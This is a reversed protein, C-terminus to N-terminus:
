SASRPFGREAPLHVAFGAPPPADMLERYHLWGDSVATGTSVLAPQGTLEGRVGDVVAQHVEDTFVIRAGSDNLVYAVEPGRLRYNVPVLVAGIRRLGSAIEYQELSNFSMIAVRDDPQAGLKTIALAAQNARASLTAYDIFREGLIVAPKGPMSDAHQALFDLDIL